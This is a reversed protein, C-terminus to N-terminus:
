FSSSIGSTFQKFESSLVIVSKLSFTNIEVIIKGFNIFLYSFYFLILKHLHLGIQSFNIFSFGSKWTMWLILHICRMWIMMRVLVGEGLVGIGSMIRVGMWIMMRVLVGALGARMMVRLLMM